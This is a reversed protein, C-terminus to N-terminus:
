IDGCETVIWDRYREAASEALAERDPGPSPPSLYGLKHLAGGCERDAQIVEQAVTEALPTGDAHILAFHTRQKGQSYFVAWLYGLEHGLLEAGDPAADKLGAHEVCRGAREVAETRSILIRIRILEEIVQVGDLLIIRKQEGTEEEQDLGPETFGGLSVFYGSVPTQNAKGRERTVVGLFKNLDAGGMKTAHAKCEAVLRRPELRHTGQIDIERGSKHVDFRLNDYGLAFFLDGVLRTFLDGRANNTSALLRLRTPTKMSAGM